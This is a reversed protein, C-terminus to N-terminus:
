AASLRREAELRAVRAELDSIEKRTEPNQATSQPHTAGAILRLMDMIPADIRRKEGRLIAKAEARTLGTKAVLREVAIEATEDPQQQVIARALRQAEKTTKWWLAARDRPLRTKGRNGSNQPNNTNEYIESFKESMESLGCAVHQQARPTRKAYRGAAECGADQPRLSAFGKRRGAKEAAYSRFNAANRNLGADPSRMCAFIM